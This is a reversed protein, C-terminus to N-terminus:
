IYNCTYVCLMHVYVTYVYIYEHIGARLFVCLLTTMPANRYVHHCIGDYVRTAYTSQM